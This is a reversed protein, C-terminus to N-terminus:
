QICFHVKPGLDKCFGEKQSMKYYFVFLCVFLFLFFAKQNKQPTCEVQCGALEIIFAVSIASSCKRMPYEKDIDNGIIISSIELLM